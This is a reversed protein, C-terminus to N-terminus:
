LGLVQLHAGLSLNHRFLIDLTLEPDNPFWRSNERQIETSLKSFQANRGPINGGSFAPDRKYIVEKYVDAFFERASVISYPRLGM